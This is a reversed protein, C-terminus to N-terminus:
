LSMFFLMALRPPIFYRVVSDYLFSIENDVIVLTIGHQFMWSCLHWYPVPGSHTLVFSLLCCVLDSGQPCLDVRKLAQLVQLVQGVM